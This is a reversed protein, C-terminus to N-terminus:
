IVFHRCRRLCAYADSPINWSALRNGDLRLLSIRSYDQPATSRCFSEVSFESVNNAQLYLYQLNRHVAPIRDLNNYALDLELLTSVNFAEAPVRPSSLFNGALRLFQLNPFQQFYFEPVQSIANWELYLQLVHSPLGGPLDDLRNNSLNIHVISKLGAFAESKVVAMENGHLLLLTLNGLNHFVRGELVRIKNHALRLEKLSAPLNKPVETLHNYNIYLYQLRALQSFAGESVNGSSIRNGDLIIKRLGTANGFAGEPVSEILGRQLYLYATRALPPPVRSLNRADCFMSTPWFHPCECEPPCDPSGLVRRVYARDLRGQLTLLSPEGAELDLEIPMGGYDHSAAPGATLLVLLPLLQPLPSQVLRAM